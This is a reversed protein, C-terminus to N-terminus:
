SSWRTSWQWWLIALNADITLSQYNTRRSMLTLLINVIFCMLSGIGLSMHKQTLSIKSVILTGNWYGIFRKDHSRTVDRPRSIPHKFHEYRKSIQCCMPLLAAPPAQWIEYRDSLELCLDRPKSVERSRAILRRKAYQFPAWTSMFMNNRSILHYTTVCSRTRRKAVYTCRFAVRVYYGTYDSVSRCRSMWIYTIVSVLWVNNHHLAAYFLFLICADSFCSDVGLLM